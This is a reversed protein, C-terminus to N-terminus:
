RMAAEIDAESAGLQRAQAFDEEAEKKEGYKMWIAGRLRYDEETPVKLEQIVYRVRDLAEAKRDQSLLLWGMERYANPIKPFSDILQTLIKEATLPDGIRNYEKALAVRPLYAEPNLQMIQELDSIAGEHLGMKARVRARNYLPIEWTPQQAILLDLDLLADNYRGMGEELEARRSRLQTVEPQMGIAMSLQELASVTDGRAVMLEALNGHLVFNSQRDPFQELLERLVMEASDPKHAEYYDYYRMVGRQYDDITVEQAEATLGLVLGIFISLYRRM